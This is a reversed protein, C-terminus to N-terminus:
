IKKSLIDSADPFIEEEWLAYEKASPHLGDKAVLNRDNSMGKSLTFIDVVKLNRKKAEEKIISNFELIGNSIDRGNSYFYGNSTASFDPITIVLLRDNNPLEKLMEDILFALRKRFEDKSIGQVWDNVGILLTAFNPKSSKYVSLEYDIADKTTWGTRSPNAILEIDIGEKQLHKTLLSPWSEEESAGEGITYSDGIAVYRIKEKAMENNKAHDLMELKQTNCSTIFVICFILLSSLYKEM